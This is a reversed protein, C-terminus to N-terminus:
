NKWESGRRKPVLWHFNLSWDGVIKIREGLPGKVRALSAIRKGVSEHTHRTTLAYAHGQPLTPTSQGVNVLGEEAILVKYTGQSLLFCLISKAPLRLVDLTIPGEVSVPSTIYKGAFYTHM